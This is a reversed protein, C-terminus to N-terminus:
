TAIKMHWRNIRKCRILVGQVSRFAKPEFSAQQCCKIRKYRILVGQVSQFVKPALSTQQCCKIRRLTDFRRASIPVSKTCLKNASLM